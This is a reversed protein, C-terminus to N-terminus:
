GQQDHDLVIRFRRVYAERLVSSGALLANLQDPSIPGSIEAVAELDAVQRSAELNGLEELSPEEPDDELMGALSYSALLVNFCRSDSVAPENWTRVTYDALSAVDIFWSALGEPEDFPDDDPGLIERFRSDLSGSGISVEGGIALENCFDLSDGILESFGNIEQDALTNETLASARNLCLTAVLARQFATAQDVLGRILNRDFM